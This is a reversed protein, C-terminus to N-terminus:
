GRKMEKLGHYLALCGYAFSVVATLVIFFVPGEAIIICTFLIAYLLMMIEHRDSQSFM